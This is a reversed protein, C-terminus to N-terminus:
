IESSYILKASGSFLIILKYNKSSNVTKREIGEFTTIKAESKLM